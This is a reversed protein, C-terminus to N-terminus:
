DDFETQIDDLPIFGDTVLVGGDARVRSLWAERDLATEIRYVTGAKSSKLYVIM